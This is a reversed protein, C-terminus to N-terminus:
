MGDAAYLHMNLKSTPLATNYIAVEDITGHFNHDTENAFDVVEDFPTLRTRGCLGALCTPSEHRHIAASWPLNVTSGCENADGMHNFKSYDKFYGRYNADSGTGDFVLAIYYMRGEHIQCFIPGLSDGGGTGGFKVEGDGRNYVFMFLKGLADSESLPAWEDRQAFITIGRTDDGEAYIIQPTTTLAGPKIWMEITRQEISTNSDIYPSSPIVLKQEQAGTFHFAFDGDNLLSDAQYTPNGFIGASLESGAAGLSAAMFTGYDENLRWYGVAGDDLVLSSYTLADRTAV